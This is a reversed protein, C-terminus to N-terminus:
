APGDNSLAPCHIPLLWESLLAPARITYALMEGLAIEPEKPILHPYLHLVHIHRYFLNDGRSRIFDTKTLQISHTHASVLPGCAKQTSLTSMLLEMNQDESNPPKMYNKVHAM